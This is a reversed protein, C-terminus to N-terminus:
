KFVNEIEKILEQVTPFNLTYGYFDICMNGLDEDLFEPITLSEVKGDSIFVPTIDECVGDINIIELITKTEDYEVIYGKNELQRIANNLTNNSM